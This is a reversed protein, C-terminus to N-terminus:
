KECPMKFTSDLSKQLVYTADAATLVGSKDVDIYTMYKDTVTELTTPTDTLVKQMIMAADAATVTTDNNADGYVYTEGESVVGVVPKTVTLTRETDSTATVFYVSSIESVDIAATLPAMDDITLTVTKNDIDFEFKYNYTKDLELATTSSVYEKNIGRLALNKNADTTFAAIENAEGAANIGKVRCFAWKSGAKGGATLKGTIVLKGSKQPEFTNNWASSANTANDQLLYEDTDAFYLVDVTGDPTVDAPEFTKSKRKDSVDLHKLGDDVTTTETPAETTIETTTETSVTSVTVDPNTNISGADAKTDELVGAYTSCEAKAQEATNMKEVNSAGNSYYFVSSNTDFSPNANKNGTTTLAADRSADNMINDRKTYKSSTLIDGVAKIAPNGESSSATVKYCNSSGEFYQNESLVLASARADICTGCNLYYNNYMHLNVQRTLPLRSKCGNFFNHHYTYNYSKVSDSGGNLSTKHTQNYRCYAITVNSNGNMDTAGDGEGKDQEETVDYKNEGINFVCNHLWFYKSDEAACADEPYKSFTLNRVEVDQCNSKFTFGWKLINADDGIGEVTLGGKSGAVDLMNFYSDKGNSIVKDILGDIAVVGNNIDTTKTGDADRTQTDITGIIRVALPKSIRSANKLINGIGTIGNYTVTNKTENTVYIVDANSKLTGDENYAGIGSHNFFAYGSRDNAKTTVNYYVTTGDTGVFKITYETNKALGPIDVRGESNRILESDVKTYNNETTKKYSVESVSGTFKAYAYENWGYCGQVSFAETASATAVDANATVPVIGLTALMAISLFLSFIKKM